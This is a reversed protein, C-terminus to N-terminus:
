AQAGTKASKCGTCVIQGAEMPKRKACLLCVPADIGNAGYKAPNQVYDKLDTGIESVEVFRGLSRGIRERVQAIALEEELNKAKGAQEELERSKEEALLTQAEIYAKRDEACAHINPDYGKRQRLRTQNGDMFKELPSFRSMSFVRIYKQAIGEDCGTLAAIDIGAQEEDVSRGNATWQILYIYAQRKYDKSKAFTLESNSLKRRDSDESVTLRRSASATETAQENERELASSNGLDKPMQHKVVLRNCPRCAIRLNEPRWDDDNGNIHELVYNHSRGSCNPVQCKLGYLETLDAFIETVDYTVPGNEPIPTFSQGNKECVLRRYCNYLARQEAKVPRSRAM